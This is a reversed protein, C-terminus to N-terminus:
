SVTGTATGTGPGSAGAGVTVGSVSAVAVTSTVVANAQIYTVVATGIAHWLARRQTQVDAPIDGANPNLADIAALVTDGLATGVLAM